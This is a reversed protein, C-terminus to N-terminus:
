LDTSPEAIHRELWLVVLGTATAPPGETLTWLTPMGASLDIGLLVFGVVISIFALLKVFSRYRRIDCSILLTIASVIAYFASLSRALYHVIPADPMEGLGLFSHISQMWAFPFFVAPIALLGSIGVIRLIVIIAIESRNM